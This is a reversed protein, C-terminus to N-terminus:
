TQSPLSSGEEAGGVCVSVVMESSYVGHVWYSAKEDTNPFNNVANGRTYVGDFVNSGGTLFMSKFMKM